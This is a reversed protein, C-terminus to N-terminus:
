APTTKTGVDDLFARFPKLDSNVPQFNSLDECFQLACKKQNSLFTFLYLHPDVFEFIDNKTFFFRQSAVRAMGFNSFFM